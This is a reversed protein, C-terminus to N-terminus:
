DDYSNPEIVVNNKDEYEEEVDVTFLIQKINRVISARQMSDGEITISLMTKDDSLTGDEKDLIIESKENLKIKM